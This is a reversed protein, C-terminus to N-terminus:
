EPINAVIQGNAYDIITVSLDANLVYAQGPTASYSIAQRPENLGTIVRLVPLPIRKGVASVGALVFISLAAIVCIKKM